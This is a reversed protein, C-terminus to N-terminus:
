EVALYSIGEFQFWALARPVRCLRANLDKYPYMQDWVEAAKTTGFKIATQGRRVTEGKATRYIADRHASCCAQIIRVDAM